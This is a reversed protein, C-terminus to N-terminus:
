VVSAAITFALSFARRMMRKSSGSRTTGAIGEVITHHIKCLLLLNAFGHRDPDTQSKDYRPSGPNEAKIHCVDGVIAGSTHVISTSCDACACRNQSLACLGKVTQLSPATM